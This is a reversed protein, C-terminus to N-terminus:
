VKFGVSLGWVTFQEHGLGKLRLGELRFGQSVATTLKIFNIVKILPM